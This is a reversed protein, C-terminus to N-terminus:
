SFVLLYGWAVYTSHLDGSPENDEHRIPTTSDLGGPCRCNYFYFILISIM